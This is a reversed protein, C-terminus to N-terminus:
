SPQRESLGQLQAALQEGFDLLPLDGFKPAILQLGFPLGRGESWFVPLSLVPYGLFTWILCTDDREGEGIRPAASATSPTMLFDYQAMIADFRTRYVPQMHLATVYEEASIQTGMSIMQRMVESMAAGRAFEAQFYYALSKCYIAQHLRHIDNIFGIESPRSVAYGQDILCQVAHEFDTKIEDDYAGYGSFQDAVVGVRLQRKVGYTKRADFYRHALPYQPDKQFAGLFTERLGEVDSGLLGITDLTDTTKLTGTRDFAGFSPKFGFVGCFSAPRVISGATQTGLCVPLAGCAVAVASGASSTGTIHGVNHPNITKGDQIYHVAFEATTTKSFIIGGRDAIEDVVRANNGPQFDKWIESGMGTPLVKTNFVDKVGFPVAFLERDRMAWASRVQAFVYEQDFSEGFRYRADLARYNRIFDHYFDSVEDMTRLRALSGCIQRFDTSRKLPLKIM